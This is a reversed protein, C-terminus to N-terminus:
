GGQRVRVPTGPALGQAGGVLLLDGSAAGSVLEVVEVQDDRLGVGVELREVRGDRVRMVWPPSAELHVARIPAVLAKRAQDTVRGEAFLGALLRGGTNPIDVFIPVQRTVPDASPSIREIRGEFWQDPYGRVEFRVRAGVRVSPLADSPVSADLRMTTPDIITYLERGPSVVDGVSVHRKSVVGSIPAHVTADELVKRASALRTRADDVQAEAATVSNQAAELDREAVAGAKVLRETREAERRAVGLAQEASRLASQASTVADGLTREEIRALLMGKRVTQGEELAAALVSGGVEARVTAEIAPRLAGSVLPGVSIEREGVAVLNEPGVEVVAPAPAPGAPAVEAREHDGCAAAGLAVTLWLAALTVRPTRWRRDKM